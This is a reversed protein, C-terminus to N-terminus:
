RATWIEGVRVMGQTGPYWHWSTNVERFLRSTGRVQTDSRRFLRGYIGQPLGPPVTAVYVQLATPAKRAPVWARRQDPLEPRLVPKSGSVPIYYFSLLYKSDYCSSESQRFHESHAHSPPTKLGEFCFHYFKGILWWRRRNWPKEDRGWVWYSGFYKIIM